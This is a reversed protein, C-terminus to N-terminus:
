GIRTQEKSEHAKKWENYFSPPLFEKLRSRARRLRSKAAEESLSLIEAVEAIKMHEAYVLEIVIRDKINLQDFAKLLTKELEDCELRSYPSLSNLCKESQQFFLWRVKQKRIWDVSHNHAIKFLLPKVKTIKRNKQIIKTWLDVFTDHVIEDIDTSNRIMTGVFRKLPQKYLSIAKRFALESGQNLEPSLDDEM